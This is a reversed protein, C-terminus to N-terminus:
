QFCLTKIIGIQFQKVGSFGTFLPHSERTETTTAVRFFARYSVQSLRHEAALVRLRGYKPLPVVTANVHAQAEFVSPPPLM